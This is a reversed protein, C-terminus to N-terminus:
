PDGQNTGNPSAWRPSSAFGPVSIAVPSRGECHRHHPTGNRPGRPRHTGNRYRHDKDNPFAEPRNMDNRPPTLRDIDNRPPTLRRLLSERRGM